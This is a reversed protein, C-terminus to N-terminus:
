RGRLADRREDGCGQPNPEPAIFGPSGSILSREQISLAVDPAGYTRTSVQPKEEAKARADLRL